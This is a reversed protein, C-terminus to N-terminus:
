FYMQLLVVKDCFTLSYLYRNKLVKRELSWERKGSLSKIM